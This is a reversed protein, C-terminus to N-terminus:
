DWFALPNLTSQSLPRCPLCPLAPCAPYPLVPLTLCSLCPLAPCPLAPNPPQAAMCCHSGRTLTTPNDVNVTSTCTHPHSSPVRFIRRCRPVKDARFSLEKKSQLNSVAQFRFLLGRSKSPGVWLGPHISLTHALTGAIAPYPLGQITIDSLLAVSLDRFSYPKALLFLM